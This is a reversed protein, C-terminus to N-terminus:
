LEQATRWLDNVQEETLGLAASLIEVLPNTRVVITAYEFEIQAISKQPEPLNAIAADVASLLGAGHLGLKFQRMTLDKFVEPEPPPPSFMGNSYIWGPGAKDHRVYGQSEAWEQDALVANVVVNNEIKIYRNTM